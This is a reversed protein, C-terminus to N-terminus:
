PVKSPLSLICDIWWVFAKLRVQTLSSGRVRRKLQANLTDFFGRRLKHPTPRFFSPWQCPGSYVIESERLIFTIGSRECEPVTFVKEVPENAM